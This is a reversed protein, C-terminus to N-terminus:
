RLLFPSETFKISGVIQDALANPDFTEADCAAEEPSGEYVRCSTPHGIVFTVSANDDMFPRLYNYTTYITGAAGESQTRLCYMKGNVSVQEVRWQGEEGVSCTYPKNIIQVKGTATWDQLHYYKTPLTEPYSYTIWQTNDTVTKNLIFAPAQPPILGTCRWNIEANKTMADVVCAPNCGPRTANLNADFWWTKTESNYSGSKLAEGGKICSHEAIIRAEAEGFTKVTNVSKGITRSTSYIKCVSYSAAVVIGVIAIIISLKLVRKPM